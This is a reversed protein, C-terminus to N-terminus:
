KGAKRKSLREIEALVDVPSAFSTKDGLQYRTAGDTIAM